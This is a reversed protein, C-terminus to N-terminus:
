SVFNGPLYGVVRYQMSASWGIKHVAQSFICVAVSHITQSPALEGTLRKAAQVGIANLESQASAPDVAQNITKVIDRRLTNEDAIVEADHRILLSYFM